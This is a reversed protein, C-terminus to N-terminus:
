RTVACGRVARSPHACPRLEEELRARLDPPLRALRVPDGNDALDARKVQLALPDAAVRAYYDDPLDALRRTIADVARCVEEAFGQDRLYFLSHM